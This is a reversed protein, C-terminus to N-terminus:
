KETSKALFSAILTQGRQPMKGAGKGRAVGGAGTNRAKGAAKSGKRGLGGGTGAAVAAKTAGGTTEIPGYSVKGLVGSHSAEFSSTDVLLEIAASVSGKAQRLAALAAQEDSFGMNALAV